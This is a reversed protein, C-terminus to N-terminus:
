ILVKNGATIVNIKFVTCDLHEMQIVTHTNIIKIINVRLLNFLGRANV